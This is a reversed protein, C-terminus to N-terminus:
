YGKMMYGLLDCTGSLLAQVDKLPLAINQSHCRRVYSSNRNCQSVAGAFIKFHYFFFFPFFSLSHMQLSSLNGLLTVFLWYDQSFNKDKNSMLSICILVLLAWNKM